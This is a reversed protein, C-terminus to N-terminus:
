KYYIIIDDIFIIVVFGFLAQNGWKDLEYFQNPRQEFWFLYKSSTIDMIPKSAM